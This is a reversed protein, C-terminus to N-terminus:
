YLSAEGPPRRRFRKYIWEFQEPIDRICREIERNMATTATEIDPDYLAFDAKEAHLAFGKGIGLRKAYVFFVPCNVKRALQCALTMTHMPVGFFPVFMGANKGPDHDPLICAVKGQKLSKYLGRVGQATTPYMLTGLRERAAHIFQDQFANKPPKYLTATEYNQAGYISALEWAGIHPALGKGEDLAAKFSDENYVKKIQKLSRKIDGFWFYPIELMYAITHRLTKKLLQDIAKQDLEPFCLRLHILIIRKKKFPLYYLASGISFALLQILWLPLKAFCKAFCVMLKEQWTAQM